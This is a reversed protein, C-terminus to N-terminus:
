YTTLKNSKDSLSYYLSGEYLISFFRLQQQNNADKLKM